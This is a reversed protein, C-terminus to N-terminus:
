NQPFHNPVPHGCVNTFNGWSQDGGGDQDSGRFVQSTKEKEKERHPFGQPLGDTQQSWWEIDGPWSRHSLAM